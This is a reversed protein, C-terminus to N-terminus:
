DKVAELAKKADPNGLAAAKRWWRKAESLNKEGARGDAYYNGLHYQSWGDGQEAALRFLRAAQRHDTKMGIGDRYCLGLQQQGIADGKSVALKIFRIGEDLKKAVGTGNLYCYGVQAIGRAHGQDAAKRVLDYGKKQDKVVGSQGFLYAVGLQCQAEADGSDAKKRWWREAQSVNPNKALEALADKANADGQAAAKEWLEKARARDPKVGIGDAYCEGLFYQAQSDGRDASMQFFEVAKIEDKAVGRGYRYMGALTRPAWAHGKNSAYLSLRRAEAPNHETGEGREYCWGLYASADVEGQDAARRFWRVAERMNKDLGKEGDFYAKGLQFQAKAKGKEADSRYLREAETPFNEPEKSPAEREKPPAKPDSKNEDVRPAADGSEDKKKKEDTRNGTDGGEDKREDSRSRAAIRKDKKKSAQSSGVPSAGRDNGRWTFNATGVAALVAICTISWLVPRFRKRARPRDKKRVVSTREAWWETEKAKPPASHTPAERIQPTRALRMTTSGAARGSLWERLAATFAATDRFRDAPKKAMARLCIAELAPDLGPRCVSPWKPEMQIVNFLVIEVPGEFPPRGTLLEYLVVGASYQDAAPGVSRTDGAAQEPSMYAPTGMVSGLQTMRTRQQQISGALGFDMLYLHDRDDVMINAPKVDRHLVNQGHAYALADVLQLALGASRRPEMGEEPILAALTRGAIFASAIYHSDGHKGADFVPVIHPHLMKAAARAERQFREVAQSSSLAEPKLLKLAVERDLQPDYARFVTGFAGAGLRVRTQYRGIITAASSPLFPKGCRPCRVPQKALGDAISCPAACAPNPCQVITPM